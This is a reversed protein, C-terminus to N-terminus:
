TNKVLKIVHISSLISLFSLFSVQLVAAKATGSGVLKVLFAMDSQFGVM